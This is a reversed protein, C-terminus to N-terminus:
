LMSREFVRPENILGEEISGDNKVKFALIEIVGLESPWHRSCLEEAKAIAKPEDTTVMYIELSVMDESDFTGSVATVYLDFITM